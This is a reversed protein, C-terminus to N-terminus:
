ELRFRIRTLEKADLKMAKMAARLDSLSTFGERRADKENLDSVNVRDCATVTARVAGFNFSLRDGPSCRYQRARLTQTKRGERVATLLPGKLLLAPM